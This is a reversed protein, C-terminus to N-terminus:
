TAPRGMPKMCGTKEGRVVLTAPTRSKPVKRIFNSRAIHYSPDFGFFNKKMRLLEDARYAAFLKEVEDHRRRDAKAAILRDIEPSAALATAKTFLAAEAAEIGAPLRDSALGLRLAESIGMPLRAQTVARAREKGVRMPLLYTWYESGYLNGMDKYHPNLIVGDRMLVRDAALSFFVGGAGANGTLGALVIRDDCVIIDRVLDNMANINAWSADAASDSNEIVSLHIGNSWCDASGLLVLVKLPRQVAVAVVRRLAECDAVSMAGNYFSFRIIGVGAEEAYTACEPGGLDNLAAAGEFVMAAPLKLQGKGSLRAHGIRLAGDCFGLVVGTGSRGMFHGPEILAEDFPQADFVHYKKDGVILGAGPDGDCARIITMAEAVTMSRPHLMRRAAPVAERTRGEGWNAEILMRANGHAMRELVERVCAVAAETIEHRYLSSKKAARMPFERWAWVPGADMDARAEILTVGWRSEGNLIAWDLANPGRDGRIGPHVILTRVRQWIDAPIARKLFPALILDPEFQAVATRTLDDHIDLEVSVVHGLDRLDVHLRQSLSNFSHCLLLIRM